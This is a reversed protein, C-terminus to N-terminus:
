GSQRWWDPEREWPAHPTGASALTHENRRVEDMLTQEPTAPPLRRLTRLTLIFAFSLFAVLVMFSWVFIDGLGRAAGTHSQGDWVGPSGATAPPAGSHWAACEAAMAPVALLIAEM